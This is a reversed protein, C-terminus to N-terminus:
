AGAVGGCVRESRRELDDLGSRSGLKNGREENHARVLRLKAFVTREEKGVAAEVNVGVGIAM